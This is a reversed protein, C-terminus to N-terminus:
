CAWREVMPRGGGPEIWAGHHALDTRQAILSATRGGVPRPETGWRIARCLRACIPLFGPHNIRSSLRSQAIAERGRHRLLVWQESCFRRANRAAEVALGLSESSYHPNLPGLSSGMHDVAFVGGGMEAWPPAPGCFSGTQLPGLVRSSEVVAV